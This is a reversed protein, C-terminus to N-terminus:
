ERYSWLDHYGPLGALDYVTLNPLDMWDYTRRIRGKAHDTDDALVVYLGDVDGGNESVVLYKTEGDPDDDQYQNALGSMVLESWAREKRLGNQKAFQEVADSLGNSDDIQPRVM